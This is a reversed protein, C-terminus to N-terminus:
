DMPNDIQPAQEREKDFVAVEDDNNDDNFYEGPNPTAFVIGRYCMVM